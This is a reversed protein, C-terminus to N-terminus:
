AHAGACRNADGTEGETYRIERGRIIKGERNMKNKEKEEKSQAGGSHDFALFYLSFKADNNHHESILEMGLVDTYFKLSEKIDKVRIM